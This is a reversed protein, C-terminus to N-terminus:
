SFLLRREISTPLNGFWMLDTHREREQDREKRNIYQKDNNHATVVPIM